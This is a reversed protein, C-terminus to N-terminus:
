DKSNTGPEFYTDRLLLVERVVGDGSFQVYLYFEFGRADYVAYEWAERKQRPLRSVRWPPGLLERVDKALMTGPALKQMNEGTLRQEVARVVGDPGLRVAFMHRGQPQRPYFWVSEGGALVIKEAPMGMTAEVDAARSQGPVLSRGDYSACGALLVAIALSGLLLRLDGAGRGAATPELTM